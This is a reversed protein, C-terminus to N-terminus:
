EVVSLYYEALRNPMNELRSILFKRDGATNHFVFLGVQAYDLDNVTVPGLTHVSQHQLFSGEYVALHSYCPGDIHELECERWPWELLAIENSATSQSLSNALWIDSGDGGSLQMKGSYTMDDAQVTSSQFTNGIATYITAGDEHFWLNRGTESDAQFPADYMLTVPDGTLDWKELEQRVTYVYDGSPHLRGRTEEYLPGNALDETNTAIYVTHMNVWQDVRPMAHVRGRGDLVIDFVDATVDLQTPAPAAAQGVQTLDVISILADHGVAATLGDPGVSIATPAKVLSQRTETGSEVDYVYLASTPYSGVMIIADLAKSYEADVVDHSLSTRSLVQLPDFGPEAAASVRMRSSITYPSGELQRACTPEYCARITITDSYDGTNLESGTYFGVDLQIVPQTADSIHVGRVANNTMQADVHIGTPAQREPTMEVIESIWQEDLTDRFLEISSRDLTAGFGESITYATAVRAPSGNIQQDCADDRCVRIEVTDEYTDDLLLGPLKFRITLEAQTPGTQVFDVTEIGLTSFAGQVTLGSDPINSLTMTVSQQPAFDGPRSDLVVSHTSLSVRPGGGGGNGGGEDGGGGGCSQLLLLALVLVGPRLASNM